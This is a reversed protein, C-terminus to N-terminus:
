TMFSYLEKPILKEEEAQTIKSPDLPQTEIGNCDKRLSRIILAAHFLIQEPTLREEEASTIDSETQTNNLNEKLRAASNIVDELKLTRDVVIDPRPKVQSPIIHLIDGYKLELKSRLKHRTYSMAEPDPKSEKLVLQYKELLDQM